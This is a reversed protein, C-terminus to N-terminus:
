AFCRLGRVDFRADASSSHSLPLWALAPAWARRPCDRDDPVAGPERVLAIAADGFREGVGHRRSCSHSRALAFFADNGAPRPSRGAGRHVAAKAGLATACPHRPEHSPSAELLWPPTTVAECRCRGDTQRPRRPREASSATAPRADSRAGPRRGCGSHAPAGRLSGSRKLVPTGRARPSRETGGESPDTREIDPRPYALGSAPITGAVCVALDDILEVQRHSRDLRV